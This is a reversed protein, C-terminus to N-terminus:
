GDIHRWRIIISCLFTQSTAVKTMYVNCIVQTDLQYNIECVLSM